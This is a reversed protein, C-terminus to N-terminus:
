IMRASQFYNSQSNAWNIVERYAAVLQPSNNFPLFYNKFSNNAWRKLEDNGDNIEKLVKDISLVLGQQGYDALKDWLPRAFDFSYYRRAGQMFSDADILYPKPIAAM